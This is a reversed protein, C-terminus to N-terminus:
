HIHPTEPVGYVDHYDKPEHPHKHTTELGYNRPPSTKRRRRMRIIQQPCTSVCLGCGYCQDPYYVMKGDEMVRSDFYCRSVCKGCNICEEPDITESIFVSRVALPSLPLNAAKAYYRLQSRFRLLKQTEEPSLSNSKEKKTYHAILSELRDCINRYQDRRHKSQRFNSLVECCDPCCNCIVYTYNPSPIFVVNHVLGIEDCRKFLQYIEKEKAVLDPRPERQAIDDVADPLALTMCTNLPAGLECKHGHERAHLRCFCYGITTRISSRLALNMVEENPLITNEGRKLFMGKSDSVGSKDVRLWKERTEWTRKKPDNELTSEFPTVAGGFHGHALIMFWKKSNPFIKNLNALIRLLTTELIGWAATAMFSLKIRGWSRGKYQSAHFNDFESELSALSTPHHHHGMILDTLM